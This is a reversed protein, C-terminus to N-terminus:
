EGALRRVDAVGLLGLLERLLALRPDLHEAAETGPERLQQGFDLDDRGVDRVRTLAGVDIEAALADLQM